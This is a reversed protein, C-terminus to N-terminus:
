RKASQLRKGCEPCYNLKYGVGFRRYYTSRAAYRKEIRDSWVSVVMAANIEYHMRGDAYLNPHEYSREKAERIETFSECFKCGM